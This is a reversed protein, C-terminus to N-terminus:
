SLNERKVNFETPGSLGQQTNKDPDLTSKSVAIPATAPVHESFDTVYFHRCEHIATQIKCKRPSKEYEDLSDCMDDDLARSLKQQRYAVTAKGLASKNRRMKCLDKQHAIHEAFTRPGYTLTLQIGKVQHQNQLVINSTSEVDPLVANPPFSEMSSPTGSGNKLTPFSYESPGRELHPM